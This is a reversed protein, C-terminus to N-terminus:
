PFTTPAACCLRGWDHQLGRPVGVGTMTHGFLWFVVLQVYIYSRIITLAAGVGQLAAVMTEEVCASAAGIPVVINVHYERLSIAARVPQKRLTQHCLNCGVKVAKTANDPEHAYKVM